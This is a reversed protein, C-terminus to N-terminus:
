PSLEKAIQGQLATFERAARMQLAASAHKGALRDRVLESLSADLASTADGAAESGQGITAVSATNAARNAKLLEPESCLRPSVCAVVNSMAPILPLYVTSLRRQIADRHAAVSQGHREERVTYRAVGFAVVASLAVPLIVLLVDRRM